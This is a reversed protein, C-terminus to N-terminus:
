LCMKDQHDCFLSGWYVTPQVSRQADGSIVALHPSCLLPLVVKKQGLEVTFIRKSKILFVTLSINFHRNVRWDNFFSRRRV